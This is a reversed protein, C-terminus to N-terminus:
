EDDELEGFIARSKKLLIVRASMEALARDKRRLDKSLEKEKNRLQVIEPDIRPRGPAKLSSYIDQKWQDIDSTHLGNARLFEGLENESM